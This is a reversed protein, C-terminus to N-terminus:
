NEKHGGDDSFHSTLFVLFVIENSHTKLHKCLILFKEGNFGQPDCKSCFM